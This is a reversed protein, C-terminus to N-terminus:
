EWQHRRSVVLRYEYLGNGIHRREVQHAGFREKRLHRLQASISAEPDETAEGIQHLTRWSGDSMLNWIRQLQSTLRPNDRGPVYDAGNFRPKQDMFDMQLENM